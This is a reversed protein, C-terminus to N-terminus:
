PCAVALLSVTDIYFSTILTANTLGHLELTVTKGSLALPVAAEFRVWRDGANDNSLHALPTVAGAEDVLAVDFVDNEAASVESTIIAYYFSLIVSAANAPITVTQSLLDDERNLGGFWALNTPSQALVDPTHNAGSGDALYIIRIGPNTWILDADDFGPNALLERSATGVSQWAGAASCTQLDGAVCRTRAPFCVGGCDTGGCVFPCALNDMWRGNTDCLQRIAGVCQYAGPLCEGTCLGAACVYKCTTGDAQWNGDAGCSEPFKGNCRVAPATCRRMSVDANVMLDTGGVDRAGADAVTADAAALDVAADPLPGRQSGGADDDIAM